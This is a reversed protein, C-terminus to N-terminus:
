DHESRVDVGNRNLGDRLPRAFGEAALDIGTQHIAAPGGVHLAAQHGRQHRQCVQVLCTNPKAAVDNECADYIFLMGPIPREIKNTAAAFSVCRDHQLGGAVGDCDTM